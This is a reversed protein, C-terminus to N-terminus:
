RPHWPQGTHAMAGVHRGGVMAWTSASWNGESVVAERVSKVLLTPSLTFRVAMAPVGSVLLDHYKRNDADTPVAVARAMSTAGDTAEALVVSLAGAAVGVVAAGAPKAGVDVEHVLGM